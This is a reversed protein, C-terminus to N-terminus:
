RKGGPERGSGLNASSRKGDKVIAEGQGALLIEITREILVQADFFPRERHILAFSVVGKLANWWVWGGYNNPGSFGAETYIRDLRLFSPLGERVVVEVANREGFDAAALLFVQFHHPHDLAFQCFTRSSAILRERPGSEEVGDLAKELEKFTERCLHLLIETKNEFHTYLTGQSCDAEAAIRRVTTSNYGEQAFLRSASRLIALRVEEHRRLRRANAEPRM